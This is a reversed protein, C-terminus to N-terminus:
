VVYRLLLKSDAQNYKSISRKTELIVCLAIDSNSFTVKKLFIELAKNFKM